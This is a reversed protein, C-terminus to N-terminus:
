NFTLEILQCYTRNKEMVVGFREFHIHDQM